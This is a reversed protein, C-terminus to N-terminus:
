LHGRRDCTMAEFLNYEIYTLVLMQNASHDGVNSGLLGRAHLDTVRCISKWYSSSGRALFSQM